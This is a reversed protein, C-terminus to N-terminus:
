KPKNEAIGFIAQDKQYYHFKHFKTLMADHMALDHWASVCVVM